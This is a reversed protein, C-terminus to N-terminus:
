AQARGQELSDSYTPDKQWSSGEALVDAHCLMQWRTRGRMVRSQRQGSLCNAIATRSFSEAFLRLQDQTPYSDLPKLLRGIYKTTKGLLGCTPTRCRAPGCILSRPSQACVLGALWGRYETGMPNRSFSCAADKGPLVENLEFHSFITSSSLNSNERLRWYLGSFSPIGHVTRGTNTGSTRGM